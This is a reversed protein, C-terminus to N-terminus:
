RSLGASRLAAAYDEPTNVNRLSDLRPDVGRLEAVDIQRVDTGELLDLLRRRGSDLLEAMRPVLSTRYVAALPSHWQGDFPIAIEGTGLRDLLERIFEPRLLPADCASVFAAETGERQLRQLGALLGALPGLGAEADRVIPVHSPLQPVEQEPGAVVVVPSVVSGVIRVVRPLLLEPGFPLSLKPRGMRTSYGGCLVVGGWRAEEVIPAPTAM